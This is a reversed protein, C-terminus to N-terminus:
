HQQITLAFILHKTPSSSESPDATLDWGPVIATPSFSAQEVESFYNTVNKNLTIKGFPVLPFEDQSWTKTPDFINYKYTEASAPDMIQVSVTWSPFKYEPNGKAAQDITNFLDRRHFDPDQGATVIAEKLTMNEVGEDPKMHIKVYSFSSPIGAGDHPPAHTFKYTNLGFIDSNRYTKPTGRDSFIM